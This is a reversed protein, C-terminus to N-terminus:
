LLFTLEHKNHHLHIVRGLEMFAAVTEPKAEGQFKLTCVFHAATGAEMWARVLALLKEPAAIVDCCLWDVPESKAPLVQFADGRRFEVGPMQAIKPELESRDVSLVRAGLSALVWTWGGPSSGLDLTSDGPGPWKGLLAFAEWLKLYARSPASEKDELFEVVGLPDPRDFDRCWLIEKESELFAFAGVGEPLELAQPFPVPQRRYARLQELILGGRGRHALPLHVWKRALGRMKKAADQISAVPLRKVERWVVAAWAVSQAEGEFLFFEEQRLLPKLKRYKLENELEGRFEAPALLAWLKEPM